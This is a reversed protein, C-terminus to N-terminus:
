ESIRQTMLHELLSFISKSKGIKVTIKDALFSLEVKKLGALMEIAMEAAFEAHKEQGNPIGVVVM